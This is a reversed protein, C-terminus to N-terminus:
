IGIQIEESHGKGTADWVWKLIPTNQRRTIRRVIYGGSFDEEYLKGAEIRSRAEITQFKGNWVEGIM